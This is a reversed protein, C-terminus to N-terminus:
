ECFSFLDLPPHMQKTFTLLFHSETGWLAKRDVLLDEVAKYLTNLRQVVTGGTAMHGYM